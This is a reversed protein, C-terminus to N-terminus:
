AHSAAPRGTCPMRPLAHDFSVEPLRRREREADLLLHHDEVGLRELGRCGDVHQEVAGSASSRGPESFVSSCADTTSSLVSTQASTSSATAANRSSRAAASRDRARVAEDDRGGARM